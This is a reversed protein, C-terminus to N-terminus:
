LARAMSREWRRTLRVIPLILILYALAAALLPSPQATINQVALAAQTVDNLAIATAISTNQVLLVLSSAFPAVAVL